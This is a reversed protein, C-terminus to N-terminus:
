PLNLLPFPCHVPNRQTLRIDIPQSINQKTIAVPTDSDACQGDSTLVNSCCREWGVYDSMTRCLVYLSLSALSFSAQTIAHMKELKVHVKEVEFLFGSYIRMGQPHQLRRRGHPLRPAHLAELGGDEPPLRRRVHARHERLDVHVRLGSQPRLVSILPLAVFLILAM